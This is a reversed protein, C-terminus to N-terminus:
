FDYKYKAIDRAHLKAILEAGRDTYEKRYETTEKHMSIDPLPGKFNLYERLPEFDKELTEAKLLFDVTYLKGNLDKYEVFESMQTWRSFWRPFEFEYLPDCYDELWENFSKLKSGELGNWDLWYGERSIKRYLSWVRMWPNRIVSFTKANPYHENVMRLNPHNIMWDVHSVVNYNLVLTEAIIKKMALGTRPVHVYALAPKDIYFTGM